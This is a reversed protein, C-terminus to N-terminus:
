SNLIDEYKLRESESIEDEEDDEQNYMNIGMEEFYEEIWSKYGLAEETVWYAFNVLPTVHDDHGIAAQFTGKENEQFNEVEKITDESIIHLINQDLLKKFSSVGIKKIASNTRLGRSLKESDATRKFKCISESPIDFDDLGDFCKFFYDGYTNAEVLLKSKEQNFSSFLEAVVVAFEDIPVTNASWHGVQEFAVEGDEDLYLKLIQIVSYDQQLGEAIDVTLCFIDKDTLEIDKNFKLFEEHKSLVDFEDSKFETKIKSLKRMTRIDLLTKAHVNFSMEYQQKFKVIGIKSIENKAWDLTKGPIEWWCVKSAKLSNKKKIANDFLEYFYEKGVPTSSIILKCLGSDKQSSLVPMANALFDKQIEIKNKGKGIYAFEDIYLINCTRGNLADSTTPGTYIKCGNDLSITSGNWGQIGAKLFFPLNKYIEKVKSLVESSTKGKNALIATHKDTNFMMCWIIYLATGITKGSQRSWGLIIEDNELFDKLQKYQYRRLKILGIKGDPRKVRCYKEIFYLINKKCRKLEQIEEHTYQFVIDGKRLDINGFYFPSHSPKQGNRYMELAWEVSQTTWIVAVPQNEEQLDDKPRPDYFKYVEQPRETSSQILQESTYM